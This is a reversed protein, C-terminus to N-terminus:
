WGPAGAGPWGGRGGALRSVPVFSGAGWRDGEARGAWTEPVWVAGAPGWAARAPGKGAWRRVTLGRHLVESGDRHCNQRYSVPLETPLGAAPTGPSSGLSVPGSGTPSGIVGYGLPM